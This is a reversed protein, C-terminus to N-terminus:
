LEDDRPNKFGEGLVEHASTIIMFANPDESEVIERVRPYAQKHFACLLIQKDTGTYAGKGSLYTVGTHLEGLIRDAVAAPHETMIYVVKAGQPGYLVFDLVVSTVFVSVIAYLAATVSHFVFASVTIVSADFVFYLYGSRFQKYKQRVIKIIVDIGGTCGKAHFVLGMGVAIFAGGIVASLIMDGGSVSLYSAPSFRELVEIFVSCLTTSYITACFFQWKFHIVCLILVPINFLMIYVGPGIQWFRNLLISVGTFGGPVINNPDLFYAVGVAYLFSGATLLFVHWVLRLWKHSILWKTM